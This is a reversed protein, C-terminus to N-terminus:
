YLMHLTIHLFKKNITLGYDVINEKRLTTSYYTNENVRFIRKCKEGSPSVLLIVDNKSSIKNHKDPYRFSFARM